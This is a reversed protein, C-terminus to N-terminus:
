HLTAKIYFMSKDGPPQLPHGSKQCWGVPFIDRSDYKCWYDFAGKWGDFTIFIQDENVSGVSAPCILRPNKRDVAELKMGTKFYNNAPTPPEKIFINKPAIDADKLTNLVFMPWHSPNKRFGLPPQLMDGNEQCHGVPKISPSDIMEWFDNTNDSGDLRLQVRPGMTGVVTAICTSTPNRPDQAELKMKLKFENTPPNPHQKFASSPAPEGGTEKLYSDWDFYGYIEYHHRPGHNKKVRKKDQSGASNSLSASGNTSSSMTTTITTTTSSSSPPTSFITSSPFSSSATSTAATTVISTAVNTTTVSVVSTATTSTSMGAPSPMSVIPNSANLHHNTSSSVSTLTTTTTTTTAPKSSSTSTLTLTPTITPTSISLTVQTSSATSVPTSTTAQQELPSSTVNVADSKPKDDNEGDNVIKNTKGDDCMPDTRVVM